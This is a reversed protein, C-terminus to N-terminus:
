YPVYGSWFFGVTFNGTPTPGPAGLCLSRHPPIFLAGGQFLPKDSDFRLAQPFPTSGPTITCGSTSLFMIVSAQPYAFMWTLVFPGDIVKQTTVTLPQNATFTGQGTRLQQVDTAATLTKAPGPQGLATSGYGSAIVLGVGAVVGSYVHSLARLNM